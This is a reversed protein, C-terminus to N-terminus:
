GRGTTVVASERLFTEIDERLYYIRKGPKSYRPGKGAARWDELTKAPIGYEAAVDEQTLSRKLPAAVVPVDDGTRDTVDIRVDLGEGLVTALEVLLDHVARTRCGPYLEYVRRRGDTDMLVGNQVSEIVIRPAPDPM